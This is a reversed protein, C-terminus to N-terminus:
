VQRGIPPPTTAALCRQLEALTEPSATERMRYFWLADNGSLATAVDVAMKIKASASARLVNGWQGRQAFLATQAALLTRRTRLTRGLDFRTQRYGLLVEDLCAYCSSSSARLLLEQDEARVVEPTRYGHKLFWDRRGMWSPHPLPIGRWPQATLAAHTAAFPLLGVVEGPERFVVARTGLLDVPPHADLYAVQKALREAFSVDDQDQRAIYRGRALQVGRNLTAALGINDQHIVRLRPDRCQNLLAASDDTSGDNIVLLEFDTFTQQLISAVARLVDRGANYVPLVVTVAPAPEAPTGVESTM